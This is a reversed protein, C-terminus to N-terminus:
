KSLFKHNDTSGKQRYHRNKQLRQELSSGENFLDKNMDKIFSAKDSDGSRDKATFAEDEQKVLKRHAVLRELADKEHVEADGQMDALKQKREEETM